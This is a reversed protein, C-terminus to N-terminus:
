MKSSSPTQDDTSETRVGLRACALFHGPGVEILGGVGDCEQGATACRVCGDPEAPSAHDAADTPRSHRISKARSAALLTKTSPHLPDRFIVATDGHEVVHGGSMVFIRDTLFRVTGLDHAILVYATHVKEQIEKLLNMVQAKISVDLASVPEDLVICSPWPALARAISVRQRMGGSLEHPYQSRLNTRLGVLELLDGVRDVRDQKSLSPLRTLPEAISAGITRKPNLSSWPDQFVSQVHARYVRWGEGKLGAIDDGEYRVVGETPEVLGLLMRATTTKGSGSEGVLGVAEEPGVAVSVDSVARVPQRRRVSFRRGAPFIKVLREGALLDASM